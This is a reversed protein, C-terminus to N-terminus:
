KKNVVCSYFIAVLYGVGLLLITSAGWAYTTKKSIWFGGYLAIMSLFSAGVCMLGISRRVMLRMILAPLVIVGLAMLTGFSQFAASLILTMAMMFGLSVPWEKRGSCRFFVPDFCYIIMPRYLILLLIIGALSAVIIMIIAGHDLQGMAGFLFHSLQCQYRSLLITGLAVSILYFGSFSADESLLSRRAVGASVIALLLGTAMSMASIAIISTGWFLVGLAAGPLMGHSLADGMLTMRRLVLFIGLPGAALSLVFCSMLTWFERAYTGLGLMQPMDLGHTCLEHM